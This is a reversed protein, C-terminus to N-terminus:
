EMRVMKIFYIGTQTKVTCFYLGPVLDACNITVQHNGKNQYGSYLQKNLEGFCNYIDLQIIGSENLEYEITTALSFPNPFARMNSIDEGFLKHNISSTTDPLPSEIAGMDPMTGMPNPRSNGMLDSEPCFYWVGEVQITDIGIGICPSMSSLSFDENLIDEFMPQANINGNGWHVVSITDMLRISDLGYEIDCYNMFLRCPTSDTLTNLSIQDPSNGWFITNIFNATSSRRLAIGGGNAASNAVFTCNIYDISASNTSGMAGSSGTGASNYAFLCNSLTGTSGNSITMCGTWLDSSNEFFVCNSISIDSINNAIRIAGVREAYSQSIECNYITIDIMSSDANLQDIIAAGCRFDSTNQILASNELHFMYVEAIGGTDVIFEIAGGQNYSHNDMYMISDAYLHSCWLRMAGGENASNEEFHSNIVEITSFDAFLAGGQVSSNDVFDCNSIQIDGYWSHIAGSIGQSSDNMFLCNQIELQCFDSAIGGGIGYALNSDFFCGSISIDGNGAGLGAGWSAVNGSFLVNIFSWNQPYWCMIGGGSGSSYNNIFSDGNFSLDDFGGASIGGGEQASNGIFQNNMFIPHSDHIQIAGGAVARNYSITNNSIIVDAWALHIGGGSPVESEFGGALNHTILCNSIIVKDYNVICIAGGANLWWVPAVAKGYQLKCYVIKSTDNTEPTDTIKIGYWGGLTTDPNYFGTTDNVTFLITDAVTGEALLRGQVYMAYHGQFEVTVGPDIILTSDNPISIDGM